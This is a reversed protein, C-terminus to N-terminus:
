AASKGSRLVHSGMVVNSTSGFCGLTNITRLALFESVPSVSVSFRPSHNTNPPSSATEPPILSPCGVISTRGAEQDSPRDSCQFLKGDTLLLILLVLFLLLYRRSNPRSQIQYLLFYAQKM